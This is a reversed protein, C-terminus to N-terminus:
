KGRFARLTDSLETLLAYKAGLVALNLQMFVTNKMKRAEKRHSYLYDSSAQKPYCTQFSKDLVFKLGAPRRGRQPSIVLKNPRATPPDLRLFVM